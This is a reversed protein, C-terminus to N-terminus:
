PIPRGQEVDAVIHKWVLYRGVDSQRLPGDKVFWRWFREASDVTKVMLYEGNIWRQILRGHHISVYPTPDSFWPGESVQVDTVMTSGDPSWILNGRRVRDVRVWGWGEPYDDM